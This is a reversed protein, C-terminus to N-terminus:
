ITLIHEGLWKALMSSVAAQKGNDFVLFYL